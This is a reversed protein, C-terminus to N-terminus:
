ARARQEAPLEVRFHAGKLAADVVAIVGHHAAVYEKVISLGLGTGKVVGGQEAGGQYFAEYVREREHPAIGPGSDIFDMIIKNETQKVEIRIAAGHPSFKIANSLLNDVIVRIKEEDAQATIEPCEINLKLDKAIIPLRQSEIVREIVKKIGVKSLSLDFKQFQAAHYSLLDEILKQLRLSNSQLIQTIERQERNLSGVSQEDLLEAGERLATLPTKLEHSIHRLFKNKQEELEILRLRMWDLRNGLYELDQPGDVRIKNAFEGDGLQRIAEDIQRIPRAILLTFGVVLFLAVPIMALLQWFIVREIQEAMLHMEQAERDILKDGEAVIARALDFLKVFEDVVRNIKEPSQETTTAFSEYLAIEAAVLEELRARQRSDLPLSSLRRATDKFNEHATRYGELVSADSLILFQRASREMANIQEVLARGNQTAQVAQYVAKESHNALQDVSIANAILVVILPLAVLLFGALILKLFSRPYYSRKLM